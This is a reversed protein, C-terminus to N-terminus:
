HVLPLHIEKFLEYIKTNFIIHFFSANGGKM